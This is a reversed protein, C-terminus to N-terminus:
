HGKNRVYANMEEIMKNLADVDLKNKRSRPMKKLRIGATRYNSARAHVIGKPMKLKEAVEDASQSTQWARIFDEPSVDYQERSRDKKETLPLSRPEENTEDARKKAM